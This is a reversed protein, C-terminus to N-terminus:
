INPCRPAYHGVQNCKKCHRERKKCEQNAEVNEEHDKNITNSIDQIYRGKKKLPEGCSKYRNPQRGKHQVQLPDGIHIFAGNEQDSLEVKVNEIFYELQNVFEGIKDACIALDLAKKAYGM